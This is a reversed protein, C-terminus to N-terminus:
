RAAHRLRPDLVRNLIDALLNAGIVFISFLFVGAEVMSFDRGTVAQIMLTGMGRYNFIPELIITAGLLFSFQIAIWSLIPPIANPLAHRLLVRRFPLGKSIATVIYPQAMVDLMQGRVLRSLTAVNPVCIAAVPLILAQWGQVQLTGTPPLLKLDLSILLVLLLALWFFPVAQGFFAVVMVWRSAASGRVAAYTGVFFAIVVAIAQATVVLLLSEPLAAAVVPMASSNFLYSDGFYLHIAGKLFEVYQVGLPQDLGLRHHLAAIVQPDSQPGALVLAPDGSIHLLVFLVTLIGFIAILAQLVRRLVYTTM